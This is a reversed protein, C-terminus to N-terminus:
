NNEQKIEPKIYTDTTWCGMCIKHQQHVEHFTAKTCYLCWEKIIEVVDFVDFGWENLTRM